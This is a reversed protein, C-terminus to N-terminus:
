REVVQVLSESHLMTQGAIVLSDGPQLGETIQVLGGDYIGTSVERIVVNGNEIVAVEFGTQTRRLVSEEVAVTNEFTRLLVSIRGAMGPRLRPDPDAFTVEVPVLGSVPDVSSATSTVVGPFSESDLASVTVFAPLGPSLHLLDEEPLLIRAVITANSSISLLPTNVSSNGPRAWIRGVEGDFPATIWANDRTSRAQTYGAYAQSLQAEAAELATGAGELQQQSVAGAEFLVQMREYNSRVNAVNADAANISAVASSTGASVLQDTDMRVLQQGASVSDGETVLVEEVTGPTMAYILAEELGEVRTNAYTTSSIDTSRVVEVSVSIPKETEEEVPGCAIVAAFGSIVIVLITRTLFKM